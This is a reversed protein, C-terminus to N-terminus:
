GSARDLASQLSSVYGESTFTAGSVADIRASQAALAEQTLRAMADASPGAEHVGQLVDVATLRGQNMTIEVQVAGGQGANVTDGTFTGSPRGSDAAGSPSGGPPASTSAGASPRVPPASAVAPSEQPKLALILVVGAVTATTAMVPRSM